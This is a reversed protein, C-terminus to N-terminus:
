LLTHYIKHLATSLIRDNYRSQSLHQANKCYLAYQTKDAFLREIANTLADPTNPSYLVGGNAVMEAFSGTDPEIAPRGAAFAECLYLGAAEEFTIPVCIASIGSYFTAHEDLTYTHHWTVCDKYPSLIAHIERLFKKDATTFGGGIHLRLREVSNKKKVSVFAEALIHLGNLKNIHYFFGITPEEPYHPSAYKKVPVGPYVVEIDEIEPIKGLTKSKYFQSSALFRDVYKVNQGISAWAEQVYRNELSEIWVEEDQLSCVVPINIHIKIAKAIGILLSSSLHIIDPTDHRTIWEIIKDTQKAFNADDGKIMSLTMREMGKASTTGSLSSALRLISPSNLMKELFFPMKGKGFFKQAVYYSTAPFFLPTDAGFSKDTLPLYLPMIIVEDGAQRLAQAYLHDRFCNGCYFTDGSGPIIFLIKM